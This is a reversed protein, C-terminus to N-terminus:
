DFMDVLTRVTRLNRATADTGLVDSIRAALKSRAIGDPAHLWAVRGAVELAESTARLEDLSTDDVRSDAFLFYVHVHRPDDPVFPCDILARRMASESLVLVAIDLGMRDAIAARLDAAHDGRDSRFVLNGSAIYSRVEDWGLHAALARLEAMPVKNRGGVNVGRLLAAYQNVLVETRALTGFQLRTM